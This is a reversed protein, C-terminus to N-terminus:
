ESHTSRQFQEAESHDTQSHHAPIGTEPWRGYFVFGVMDDGAYIAYPQWWREVYAQALSLQNPAVFGIRQQEATPALEICQIWNDNTIPQLTINM